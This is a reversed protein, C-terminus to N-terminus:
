LLRPKRFQFEFDIELRPKEIVQNRRLKALYWCLLGYTFARDDHMTSRRDPPYNYTVSGANVYKCMTIIENKMLEIQLLAEREEDTLLYTHEGGEDDITIIYDKDGCDAPFTVVGLKTMQEAAEFLENRAKQPDVLTMIDLADPYYKASVENAKHSKDIIGKHKKGDKGEWEELLYDSVGHIMGGGTGADCVIRKINEYDMKKKENANYDL